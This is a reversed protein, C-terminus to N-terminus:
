HRFILLQVIHHLLLQQQQQATTLQAEFILCATNRFHKLIFYVTHKANNRFNDGADIFCSRDIPTLIHRRIKCHNM